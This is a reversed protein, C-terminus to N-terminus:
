DFTAARSAILRRVEDLVEQACGKRTPSPATLAVTKVEQKGTLPVGAKLATASWYSLDKFVGSMLRSAVWRCAISTEKKQIYDGAVDIGVSTAGSGAPSAPYKGEVKALDGVGGLPTLAQPDDVRTRNQWHYRQRDPGKQPKALPDSARKTRDIREPHALVRDMLYRKSAGTVANVSYEAGILDLMMLGIVWERGNRAPEALFMTVALVPLASEVDGSGRGSYDKAGQLVKRLKRAIKKSWAVQEMPALPMNEHMFRGYERYSAGSDRSWINGQSRDTGAYAVDSMYFGDGMDRGKRSKKLTRGGAKLYIDRDILARDTRLKQWAGLWQAYGSLEWATAPATGATAPPSGRGALSDAAAGVMALLDNGSIYWDYDTDFRIGLDQRM